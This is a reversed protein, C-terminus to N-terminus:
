LGKEFELVNSSFILHSLVWSGFHHNIISLFIKRKLKLGSKLCWGALSNTSKKSSKNKPAKAPKEITKSIGKSWNSV